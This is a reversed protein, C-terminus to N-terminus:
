VSKRETAAANQEDAIRRRATEAKRDLRKTANYVDKVPIGKAKSIEAPTNYGDMMAEIVKMLIEDDACEDM